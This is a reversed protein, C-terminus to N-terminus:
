LMAVKKEFSDRDGKAMNRMRTRANFITSISYRLFSAIKASDTIGLRICCLVRLDTNLREGPKIRFETGDVMLEKVDNIFNPFINLFAEDFNRYFTALQEQTFHHSALEQQVKAIENNKIQQNLAKRWSDFRDILLSSMEMYRGVYVAKIQDSEKLDSYTAQLQKNLSALRRRQRANYLLFVTLLAAVLVISSLFGILLRHRAEDQRQYASEIIPYLMGLEITRGRACGAKADEIACRMYRYANDVDGESYLLLALERLSIYERIAAKMDSCASLILQEKEQEKMGLQHYIQAKTIASIAQQDARVAHQSEYRTLLELAETYLGEACLGDAHVVEQYFSGAEQVHMLSDTYLRKLSLYSAQQDVTMAFDAMLGYLTRRLNYYYPYLVDIVGTASSSDLYQIAEHYLGLRMMVESTNMQAVERYFADDISRSLALRKHAYVQQSDINFARYMDYMRGYRDFLELDSMGTVPMHCLSDLTDQYRAHIVYRGAILTDLERLAPDKNECAGIGVLLLPLLLLIYKGTRNRM